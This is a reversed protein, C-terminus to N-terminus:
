ADFALFLAQGYGAPLQYTAIWSSTVPNFEEIKGPPTTSSCTPAPDCGPVAVWVNGKSDFTVGWPEQGGNLWFDTATVSPSQAFGPLAGQSLLGFALALTALLSALVVFRALISRKNM